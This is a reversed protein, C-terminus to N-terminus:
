KLKPQNRGIGPKRITRCHIKMSHGVILKMLVPLGSRAISVSDTNIGPRARVGHTSNKIGPRMFFTVLTGTPHM